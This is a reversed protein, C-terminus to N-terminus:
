SGLLMAQHNEYYEKREVPLMKRLAMTEGVNYCIGSCSLSRSKLTHVDDIKELSDFNERQERTLTLLASQEKKCACCLCKASNSHDSLNNVSCKCTEHRNLSTENPISQKCLCPVRHFTELTKDQCIKQENPIKEDFDKRQTTLYCQCNRSTCIQEDSRAIASENLIHSKLDRSTDYRKDSHKKCLNSDEATSTSKNCVCDETKGNSDLLIKQEKPCIKHWPKVAHEGILFKSYSTVDISQVTKLCLPWKQTFGNM